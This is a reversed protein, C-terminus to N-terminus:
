VSTGLNLLLPRSVGDVMTSVAVKFAGNYETYNIVQACQGNLKEDTTMGTMAVVANLDPLFRQTPPRNASYLAQTTVIATNGRKEVNLIMDFDEQLGTLFSELVRDGTKLADIATSIASVLAGLNVQSSEELRALKILHWLATLIAPDEQTPKVFKTSFLTPGFAANAQLSLIIPMEQSNFAANGSTDTLLLRAVADLPRLEKTCVLKTSALLAASSSSAGLTDLCFASPLLEVGSLKVRVQVQKHEQDTLADITTQLESLAVTEGVQEHCDRM